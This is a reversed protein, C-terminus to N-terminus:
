PRAAAAVVAAEAAVPVTMVVLGLGAGPQGALQKAHMSGVTAASKPSHMDCQGRPYERQEM